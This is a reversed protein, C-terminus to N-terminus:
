SNNLHFLLSESFSGGNLKDNLAMASFVILAVLCFAALIALVLAAMYLMVEQDSM